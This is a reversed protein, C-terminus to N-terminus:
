DVSQNTMQFLYFHGNVNRCTPLIDNCKDIEHSNVLGCYFEWQLNGHYTYIMWCPKSSSVYFVYKPGQMGGIDCLVINSQYRIYNALSIRTGAKNQHIRLFLFCWLTAIHRIQLWIESRKDTAHTWLPLIRSTLKLWKAMNLHYVCYFDRWIFIIFLKDEMIM